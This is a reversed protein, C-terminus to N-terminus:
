KKNLMADAVVAQGLAIGGDNSPVRTHSLVEFGKSTLSNTLGSLMISNQFVGGSLAVKAFGTQQRFSICVDTFLHILTNHFKMSIESLHVQKQVDQVIGQIITEVPIALPAGGQPIAYAYAGTELHDAAMELEMAAQGEFAVSERLGALAAVGDFLRGLSSTYPSNIGKEIMEIITEIKHAQGAKLLPLDLRGLDRGYARYLYSIAMRWPAKIAASGGPM